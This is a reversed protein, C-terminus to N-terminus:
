FARNSSRPASSTQELCAVPKVVGTGSQTCTRPKTEFGQAQFQTPQAHGVWEIELEPNQSLVEYMCASHYQRQLAPPKDQAFMSRGWFNSDLMKFDYRGFREEILEETPLQEGDESAIWGASIM